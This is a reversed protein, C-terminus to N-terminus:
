CVRCRGRLLPPAGAPPPRYVAPIAAAASVASRAILRLSLDAKGANPNLEPETSPMPAREM